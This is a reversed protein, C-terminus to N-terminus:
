AGTLKQAMQQRMEASLMEGLANLPNPLQEATFATRM